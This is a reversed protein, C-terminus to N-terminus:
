GVFTFAGGTPAPTSGDDLGGLNLSLFPLHYDQTIVFPGTQDTRAAMALESFPQIEKLVEFGTTMDQYIISINNVSTPRIAFAYWTNAALTEPTGLTFRCQAGSFLQDPDPTFTVIPTPTGFPDSYLIAEFTDATAVASLFQGLAVISIPVNMQWAACYEDPTSGSNFPLSVGTANTNYLMPCGDIWGWSGDNFQITFPAVEASKTSGTGAVGYPLGFGWTPLSLRNITLSDAGARATCLLGVAILQGHTITKSGSEMTIAYPLTSAITEVGPVLTASVDFTGDPLGAADVDQVGIDVSTGGNAWVVSGATGFYIKGGGAASLVKSGTQAQLHCYGVAFARGNVANITVASADAPQGFSLLDPFPAPLNVIAM